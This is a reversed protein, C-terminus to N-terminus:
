HSVRHFYLALKWSMSTRVDDTLQLIKKKCLYDYSTNRVSFCKSFDVIAGDEMEISSHGEVYFYKLFSAEVGPQTIDNSHILEQVKDPQTAQHVGRLPALIISTVKDKNDRDLECCHTLVMCNRYRPPSQVSWSHPQFEPFQDDAIGPVTIQEYKITGLVQINGIIDGQRLTSPDKGAEDYM